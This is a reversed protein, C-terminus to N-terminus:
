PPGGPESGGATESSQSDWAEEEDFENELEVMEDFEAQREETMEWVAMIPFAKVFLTILLAFFAFGGATISWEVWTPSYSAPEYPLLPARLGTVVIFYREVWMGLDVFVAATVIGAVTRLRRIFMFVVPTLLGGIFYFWFYPAFEDIFLQRFLFETGEEFKFGATIYESLNAYIMVGAMAAMLYGLYLFHKPTIYEELRYVRRLIAMVVILTAIGSFIAGAVFFFGFITSNWAERLTMAFIWSVVTHVSVAIPIILIMMISIGRGLQRKQDSTGRWNVALIRYILHKPRSVWPALRDRFFALDPVMPLYLYVISATLYTTVALVDWVIPSQWRGFVLVNILRDPRGLDVVVFLAGTILAVATIFEAMRTVPTRWGAHSVRLIASILTGAHSIGIFFVFMTIYLGWSIRDSLGTVVLGRRVQVSYAYVGWGTVALLFFLFAYYNRTTKRAPDLTTDELRSQWDNVSEM